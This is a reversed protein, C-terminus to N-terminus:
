CICALTTSSASVCSEFDHAPFRTHTRSGGKAGFLIDM